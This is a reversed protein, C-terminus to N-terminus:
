RLARAVDDAVYRIPRRTAPDVVRLIGVSELNRVANAAASRTLQLRRAVAATTIYPSGVLLEALARTAPGYKAAAARYRALIVNLSRIRDYTDYSSEEIGQCFFLIWQEWDGRTSVQLLREQYEARRAEFWPSVSLLPQRLMGRSMFQLLILLRGIRGNGDTFPHLTEFQYHFMAAELVMMGPDNRGNWWSFLEEVENNLMDGPPMPVFRADEIRGNPSGIFVQSSRISGAHGHDSATDRILLQQLERTLAVGLPRGELVSRTGHDTADLYNLVERMSDNFGRKSEGVEYDAALVTELQEYTGELASTSQAERRITPRWLLEPDAIDAGIADLRGLATTARAVAGMMAATFRPYADLRDPLFAVTDYSSLGYRTQVEGHLPLLTGPADNTFM